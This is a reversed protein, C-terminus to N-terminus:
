GINYLTTVGADGGYLKYGDAAMYLTCIWTDTVPLNVYFTGYCHTIGEWVFHYNICYSKTNDIIGANKMEIYRSYIVDKITADTIVNGNAM